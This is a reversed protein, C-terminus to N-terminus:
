MQMFFYIAGRLSYCHSQYKIDVISACSWIPIQTATLDISDCNYIHNSKTKRKAWVNMYISKCQWVSNHCLWSAWSGIYYCHWGYVIISSPMNQAKVAVYPM